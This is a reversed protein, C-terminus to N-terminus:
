RPMARLAQRLLSEISADDGVPLDSIAQEAEAPRWGMGILAAMVEGLLPHRRGSIPKARPAGAADAVPRTGGDASWSLLLM